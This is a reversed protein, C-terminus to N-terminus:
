IGGVIKEVMLVVANPSDASYETLDSKYNELDIETKHTFWRTEEIFELTNSTGRLRNFRLHWPTSLHFVQFGCKRLRQIDTEYRVNDILIVDTSGSICEMVKDIVDDTTFRRATADAAVCRFGYLEYLIDNVDIRRLTFNKTINRLKQVILEM